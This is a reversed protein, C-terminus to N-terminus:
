GNIYLQFLMLKCADSPMQNYRALVVTKGAPLVNLSDCPQVQMSCQLLKHHKAPRSNRGAPAPSHARRAAARCPLHQRSHLAPQTGSAGACVVEMTSMVCCLGSANMCRSQSYISHLAHQTWSAGTCVVRTTCMICCPASAKTCICQGHHKSPECLSSTLDGYSCCATSAPTAM